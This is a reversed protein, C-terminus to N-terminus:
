GIPHAPVVKPSSPKSPKIQVPAPLRTSPKRTDTPTSTIPSVGTPTPSPSSTHLSKTRPAPPLGPLKLATLSSMKFGEDGLEVAAANLRRSAALVQARAAAYSRRDGAQSAHDLALFAMDESRLATKLATVAPENRAPSHLSSLSAIGRKEAQAIRGARLSRSRLQNAGLGALDHRAAAVPALEETLAAALKADAGPPLLELGAVRASSALSACSRLPVTDVSPGQCVIALDSGVTPIVYVIVQQGGALKWEYRTGPHRAVRAAAAAFGQGHLAILQPPAGGPVPASERLAGATLTTSGYRLSIARSPSSLAVSAPPLTSTARWPIRYAITLPGSRSDRTRANAAGRAGALVAVLGIVAAAVASGVLAVRRGGRAPQSPVEVQAVRRRLDAATPETAFRRKAATMVETAETSIPQPLEGVASDLDTATVPVHQPPPCDRSAFGQTEDRDETPESQTEPKAAPDRIEAGDVSATPAPDADLGGAAVLSFAPVARRQEASLDGLAASADRILDGAREYRVSPDKAMGRAIVHDLRHARPPLPPLTPPPENLHAHMIGADTDRPYPVEGTLCQYLVATLAYIDSPPTTKDGRIQEPSAYNISGVFGGTATLGLTGSGGKAVGFDALYPHGTRSILINQPKVDRHVLSAAHAADLADAIPALVSLTDDASLGDCQMQDSLTAGDVLRMALYLRGDVEGSDYVALVNPHDLAAIHKGERRFRERFAEDHSLQPALVKLAVPRGLSIQEARYVIAMGGLGIIDEIRYGGLVEGRALITATAAV